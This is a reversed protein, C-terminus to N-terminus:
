RPSIVQFKHPIMNESTLPNRCSVTTVGSSFICQMAGIFSLRHMIIAFCVEGDCLLALEAHDIVLFEGILVVYLGVCLLVTPMTRLLLHVVLRAAIPIVQWSHPFCDLVFCVTKM